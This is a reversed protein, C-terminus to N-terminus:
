TYEPNNKYFVEDLRMLLENAMLDIEPSIDISKGKGISKSHIEKFIREGPFEQNCIKYIKALVIEPNAILHEYKCVIVRPNAELKLRFFINNRLYWFLVAADHPKMDESFYRLILNREEESVGESRWNYPELDVIPRLNNIGSMLGFEKLDSSAVDNYDRYIWLAYSNNFYDLLELINQSEVLPKLITFPAKDKELEKEVLDYPNLRIKKNIDKSSLKSREGYVNTYYDNRFIRTLLTTGSRQCGVIFLITKEKSHRIFFQFLEKKMLKYIKKYAKILKEM